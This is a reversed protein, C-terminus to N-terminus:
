SLKDKVYNRKYEKSYRIKQRREHNINPEIIQNFLQLM